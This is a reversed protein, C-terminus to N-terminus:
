QTPSYQTKWPTLFYITEGRAKFDENHELADFFYLDEGKTWDSNTNYFEDGLEAHHGRFAAIDLQTLAPPATAITMPVLLTDCTILVTHFQADMDTSSVPTPYILNKHWIDMM